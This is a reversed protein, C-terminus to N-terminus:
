HAHWGWACWADCVVTHLYSFHPPCSFHPSLLTKPTSPNHPLSVQAAFIASYLAKAIADRTQACSAESMLITVADDVGAAIV